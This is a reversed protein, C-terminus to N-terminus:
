FFVFLDCGRWFTNWLWFVTFIIFGFMSRALCLPQMQSALPCTEMLSIEHSWLGDHICQTVAIVQRYHQLEDIAYKNLYVSCTYLSIMSYSASSVLLCIFMCMLAATYNVGYIVTFVSLPCKVACQSSKYKM